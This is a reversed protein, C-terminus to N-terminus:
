ARAVARPQSSSWMARITTEKKAAEVLEKLNKPADAAYPEGHGSVPFLSGRVPSVAWRHNRKVDLM